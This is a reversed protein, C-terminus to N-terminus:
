MLDTPNCLEDHLALFPLFSPFFLRILSLDLKLRINKLM